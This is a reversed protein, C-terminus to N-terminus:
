SFSLFYVAMSVVTATYGGEKMLLRKDRTESSKREKKAGPIHQKKNAGPIHQKKKSAPILHKKKM